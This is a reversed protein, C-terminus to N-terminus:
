RAGTPPGGRHWRKSGGGAAPMVVGALFSGAAFLTVAVWTGDRSLQPVIHPSLPDNVAIADSLAGTLLLVVAALAALSVTRAVTGLRTLSALALGAVFGAPVWAIALHLLPQADQGALQELPLAGHVKPGIGLGAARILYLEGAGAFLAAVAILWGAAAKLVRLSAGFVSLHREPRSATIAEV